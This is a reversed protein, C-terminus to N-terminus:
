VGGFYTSTEQTSTSCVGAVIVNHVGEGVVDVLVTDVVADDESMDDGDDIVDGNHM